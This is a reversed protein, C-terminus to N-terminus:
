NVILSELLTKKKKLCFMAEKQQIQRRSKNVPAATSPTLPFKVLVLTGTTVSKRLNCNSNM